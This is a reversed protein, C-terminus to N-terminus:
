EPQIRLVMKGLLHWAELRQHAKAADALPFEAGIHVKLRAAEIARGWASSSACAPADRRVPHGEPRPAERARARDRESLRAPRRRAAADLCRELSEGGAFALVADIGEPEFRQAAAKIDDRKGDVVADAGLERALAVGDEGSATALVRAGRMKAFQLAVHGVGGSAGHVIVTDGSKV